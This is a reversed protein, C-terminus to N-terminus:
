KNLIERIKILTKEINYPKYIMTKHLEANAIDQNQTETYGTVLQIKMDPYKDQVINSLENGDMKPMIMDTIMLDIKELKLIQLADKASGAIFIQYGKQELTIALMDLLALEDDVLLIAESGGSVVNMTSAESIEETENCYRPLYILFQSGKGETSNVVIVGNSREVFGFVQSLGFGSGKDGKTTFFPEFIQTKTVEDMGCGTDSLCLLVYDGEELALTHAETNSLTQNNVSITLKNESNDDDMAHMANIGMNLIADELQSSNLFVPWIEDAFEFILKIRVTLTKQLMDQQQLLVKKLDTKESEYVQKSTFSLLKKTLKAGREGAKHIQEIYNSHEPKKDQTSKLLQTYGLIIGLLNNFDHAIGGTIKGLADMKQNHTIQKEQEKRQTINTDVGIMRVPKGNDDWEVFIGRDNFWIYHGDKHKIRYETESTNIEKNLYLEFIKNHEDLDSPHVLKEWDTLHIVAYESKYGTMELWNSDFNIEDTLLNWDWIGSENAELALQLRDKSWKLDQNLLQFKNKSDLAENRLSVEIKHGWWNRYALSVVFICVGVYIYSLSSENLADKFIIIELIVFTIAIAPYQTEWQKAKDSDIIQNDHTEVNDKSKDHEFAAMYLLTMSIFYVVNIPLANSYESSLLAYSYIFNMIFLGAIFSTILTLIQRKKGRVHNTIAILGVFLAATLEIGYLIQIIIASISETVSIQSQFLFVHAIYIVSFIIGFDGIQSKTM